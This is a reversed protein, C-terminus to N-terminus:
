GVMCLNEACCCHARGVERDHDAEEHRERHTGTPISSVPTHSQSAPPHPEPGWAICGRWGGGWVYVCVCTSLAAAAAAGTSLEEKEWVISWSLVLSTAEVFIVSAVITAKAVLMDSSAFCRRKSSGISFATRASTVTTSSAPHPAPHRDAHRPEGLRMGIAHSGRGEARSGCGVFSVCLAAADRGTPAPTSVRLGGQGRTVVAEVEVQDQGDHGETRHTSAHKRAQTKHTGTPRAHGGQACVTTMVFSMTVVFACLDRPRDAPLPALVPLRLGEHGELLVDAREDVLEAGVVARGDRIQARAHFRQLALRDLAGVLLWRELRKDGPQVADEAVSRALAPSPAILQSPPQTSQTIPPLFGWGWPEQHTTPLPTQSPARSPRPAQIASPVPLFLLPTHTHTQSISQHKSTHFLLLLKNMYKLLVPPTPTPDIFLRLSSVGARAVLDSNSTRLTLGKNREHWDIPLRGRREYYM